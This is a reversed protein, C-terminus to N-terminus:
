RPSRAIWDEHWPPVAAAPLPRAVLFGQAEDVGWAAVRDWVAATEVGEAVVTLGAQRAQAMTARLFAAAADSHPADLVVGKDLKMSTFPLDLLPTHDRVDPSVDDIALRYGLARLRTVAGRLEDLHHLVQTETLEIIIREAPISSAARREELATLAPPTLLVDLPLNLALSLGRRALADGPWDACARALMTEALARSLGAKEIQPIFRDPGITGHVPHDIRALVELSVPMRDAIRVIPQYRAHVRDAALAERLEGIPLSREIPRSLPAAVARGLWGDQAHPVFHVHAPAPAADPLAAEGLVVLGVGSGGEGATLGMLAALMDGALGPQLLLHSFGHDSPALRRVADAASHAAAIRIEADMAAMEAHVLEGWPAGGSSLLLLHLQAPRRSDYGMM